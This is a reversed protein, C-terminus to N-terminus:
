ITEISTDSINRYCFAFIICFLVRALQGGKVSCIAMADEHMVHQWHLVSPITEHKATNMDLKSQPKPKATTYNM